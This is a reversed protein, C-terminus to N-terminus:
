KEAYSFTYGNSPTYLGRAWASVSKINLGFRRAADRGCPFTEPTLSEPSWVLVERAKPNQAGLLKGRNGAGIRLKVEDPTPGRLPMVRAAAAARIRAKTENSRPVGRRDEATALAAQRIKERTAESAKVGRRRDGLAKRQEETFKRGAVGEGGTTRNYGAAGFTGREAILAVELAELGEVAQTHICVEFAAHGHKKLARKLVTDDGDPRCHDYMRRRINISKGVYEKGSARHRIIYVGGTAPLRQADTLPAWELAM